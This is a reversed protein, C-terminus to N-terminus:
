MVPRLPEAIQALLRPRCDRLQDRDDPLRFVLIQLIGDQNGRGYKSDIGIVASGDSYEGLIKRVPTPEGVFM